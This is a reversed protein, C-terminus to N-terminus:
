GIHLPFYGDRLFVPKEFFGSLNTHRCCARRKEELLILLVRLKNGRGYRPRLPFLVVKVIAFRTAMVVSLQRLSLM